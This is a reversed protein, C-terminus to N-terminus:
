AVPNEPAPFGCAAIYQLLADIPFRQGLIKKKDAYGRDADRAASKEAQAAIQENRLAQLAAVADARTMGLPLPERRPEPAARHQLLAVFDGFQGPKQFSHARLTFALEEDILVEAIYLVDTGKGGGGQPRDAEKDITRIRLRNM